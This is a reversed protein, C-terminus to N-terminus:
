EKKDSLYNKYYNKSFLKLQIPEFHLNIDKFFRKYIHFLKM